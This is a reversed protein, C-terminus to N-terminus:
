AANGYRVGISSGGSRQDFTSDVSGWTFRQQQWYAGLVTTLLSDHLGKRAIEHEESWDAWSSGFEPDSCAISVSELVSGRFWLSWAFSRGDFQVTPLAFSCYPENRVLERCKAAFPSALFEERSLSPGIRIGDSSFQIQGTAREIMAHAAFM